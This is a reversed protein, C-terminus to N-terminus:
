YNGRRVKFAPQSISYKVIKEGPLALRRSNSGHRMEFNQSRVRASRTSVSLSKDPESTFLGDFSVKRGSETNVRSLNRLAPKISSLRSKELKPKFSGSSVKEVIRGAYRKLENAITKGPWNSMPAEINSLDQFASRTSSSLSKPTEISSLDQFASRTSSSLSKHFESSFPYNLSAKQVSQANSHDKNINEELGTISRNYDLRSCSKPIIKSDFSGTNPVNGTEIASIVSRNADLRSGARPVIESGFSGANTSNRIEIDSFTSSADSRSGSRLIGTQAVTCSPKLLFKKFEAGFSRNLPVKQASSDGDM